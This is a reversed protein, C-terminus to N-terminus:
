TSQFRIKKFYLFFNSRTANRCTWLTTFIGKLPICATLFATCYRDPLSLKLTKFLGLFTVSFFIVTESNNDFNVYYSFTKIKTKFRMM